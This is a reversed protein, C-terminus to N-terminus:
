TSVGLSLLRQSFKLPKLMNRKIYYNRERIIQLESVNEVYEHAKWVQLESEPRKQKIRSKIRKRTNRYDITKQEISKGSITNLRITGYAKIASYISTPLTDLSIDKSNIKTNHKKYLKMTKSLIQHNIFPPSVITTCPHNKM